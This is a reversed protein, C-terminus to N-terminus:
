SLISFNHVQGKIHFHEMEPVSKQEIKLKGSVSNIICAKMEMHSSKQLLREVPM